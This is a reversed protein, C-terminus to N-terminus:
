IGSDDQRAVEGMYKCETSYWWQWNDCQQRLQQVVQPYDPNNVMLPLIKRQDEVFQLAFGNSAHWAIHCHMLWSGPNDIRFALIVYGNNPLMVVDRRPPNELQLEPPHEPDYLEGEKGQHLIVFDHGHLHMPHAGQVAHLDIQVDLDPIGLGPNMDLVIKTWNSEIIFTTWQNPGTSNVMIPVYSSNWEDPALIGSQILLLAPQRWDIIFTQGSQVLSWHRVENTKNRSVPFANRFYPSDDPPPITRPVVPKLLSPDADECKLDGSDPELNLDATQNSNLDYSLIGQRSEEWTCLTANSLPCKGNLPLNKCNRMRIWFNPSKETNANAHVLVDYRQGIAINLVKTTYKHIPVFDTGIVTMEHSDIWFRYHTATSTNIIRFRYVKGHEVGTKYYGGEDPVCRNCTEPDCGPETGDHCSNVVLFKGRGNILKAPPKFMTRDATDVIEMWYLSFVDVHFWDTILLPGKDVDYNESTPGHILLPGLAGNSYQLSFHSHYWSAGYQTARWRYTFRNTYGP